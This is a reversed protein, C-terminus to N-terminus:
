TPLVGIVSDLWADGRGAAIGDRIAAEDSTKQRAKGIVEATRDRPIVLLGDEDGVVADGPMVVQGGIAIPVGILGPGSKYPGRPNAGRAFCPFDETAFAGVDRIAGDIVFGACGRARAALMMLEGVLANELAGGGDVVLIQGPQLLRIARYINLNDGPRTKVTVASGVLRQANNFRTLGLIGALRDMADALVTTSLARLAAADEEALVCDRLAAVTISM